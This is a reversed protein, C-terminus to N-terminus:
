HFQSSEAWERKRENWYEIDMSESQTGTEENQCLNVKTRCVPCTTGRKSYLWSMGCPACVTHGCPNVIQPDVIPCELDTKFAENFPSNINDIQAKGKGKSSSHKNDLLNLRPQDSTADSINNELSQHQDINAIGGDIDGSTPLLIADNFTEDDSM